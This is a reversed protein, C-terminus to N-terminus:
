RLKHKLWGKDPARDYFQLRGKEDSGEMVFAIGYRKPRGIAKRKFTFRVTHANVKKVTANGSKPGDGCEDVEREVVFYDSYKCGPRDSVKGPVNIWLLPPTGGPEHWAVKGRTKVTHVLRGHKGHRFGIRVIDSRADPGPPDHKVDGRPDSTSGANALSLAALVLPLLSPVPM